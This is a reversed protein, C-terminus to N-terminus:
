VRERERNPVHKQKMSNEYTFLKIFLCKHEILIRVLLVFIKTLWIFARQNHKMPSFSCLNPSIRAGSQPASSKFGSFSSLFYLKSPHIWCCPLAGLVPLGLLERHPLPSCPTTINLKGPHFAEATIEPGSSLKIWPNLLASLFPSQWENSIM